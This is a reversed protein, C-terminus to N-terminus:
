YSFFSIDHFFICEKRENDQECEKRKKCAKVDRLFNVTNDFIKIKVQITLVKNIIRFIIEGPFFVLYESNIVVSRFSEDKESVIFIECGGRKRVKGM